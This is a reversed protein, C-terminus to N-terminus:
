TALAVVVGVGGPSYFFYIFCDGGGFETQWFITAVVAVGQLLRPVGVHRGRPQPIAGRLDVERFGIVQVSLHRRRQRLRGASAVGAPLM